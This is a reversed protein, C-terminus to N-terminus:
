EVGMGIRRRAVGTGGFGDLGALIELQSFQSLQPDPFGWPDIWALPVQSASRCPTAFSQEHRM